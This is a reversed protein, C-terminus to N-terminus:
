TNNIRDMEYRIPYADHMTRLLPDRVSIAHGWLQMTQSYICFCFLSAYCFGAPNPLSRLSPQSAAQNRQLSKPWWPAPTPAAFAAGCSGAVGRSAYLHTTLSQMSMKIGVPGDPVQM